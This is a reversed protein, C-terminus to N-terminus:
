VEVITVNSGAGDSIAHIEGLWPFDTGRGFSFSGGGSTLLIGQGAVANAGLSLYIKNVSDNVIIALLRDPNQTFIRSSAVGVTDTGSVTTAHMLRRKDSETLDFM